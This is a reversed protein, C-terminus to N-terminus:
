FTARVQPLNRGPQLAISDASKKFNKQKTNSNVLDKKLKAFKSYNRKSSNERGLFFWDADGSAGGFCCVELLPLYQGLNFWRPTYTLRGKL